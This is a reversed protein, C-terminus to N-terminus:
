VHSPTYDDSEEESADPEVDMPMLSIKKKERAKYSIYFQNPRHTTCTGKMWLDIATTLIYKNKLQEEIVIRFLTNLRHEKFSARTDTKVCKM